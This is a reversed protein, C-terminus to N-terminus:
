AGGPGGRCRRPGPARYRARGARRPRGLQRHRGSFVQALEALSISDLPNDPAVIPVLADLAIVRNQAAAALDGLGAARGRAAEEARVERRSVVIDTENVLLDAFGEDSSSSRILFRGAARGTRPQSLLYHQVSEPSPEQRLAYGARRAFGRVLAPLLVRAMEPAGSITIEAVFDELNPCGPGDCLCAAATSPSNVTFRTSGTSAGTM